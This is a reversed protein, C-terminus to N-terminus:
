TSVTRKHLRIERAGSGTISLVGKADLAKLHEQAANPSSFGLADAIEKRTPAQGHEEVYKRVYTLVRAQGPPLPDLRRQTDAKAALEGLQLAHLRLAASADKDFALFEDALDDLRQSVAAVRLYLAGYSQATM